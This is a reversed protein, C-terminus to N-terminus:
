KQACCYVDLGLRTPIGTKMLQERNRKGRGFWADNFDVDINELTAKFSSFDACARALWRPSCFDTHPAAKGDPTIDYKARDGPAGDFHFGSGLFEGVIGRAFHGPFDRLQRYSLSNYVMFRLTGGPRLLRHCQSIARQLDGTHHLCGIAVIQDFSGDPWPPALISGQRVDAKVGLTDARHRAFLVPGEAIDLGSYSKASEMFKQAVSGYGLGVELVDHNPADALGIHHKLYPYFEFYWDDFKRVSAASTDALGLAQAALTGCPTTWFSSNAADIANQNSSTM